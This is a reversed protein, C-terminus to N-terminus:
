FQLLKRTKTLIRAAVNQTHQLKHFSHNTISTLLSNGNDIRSTIPAHIIIAATENIFNEKHQKCEKHSFICVPLDASRLGKKYHQQLKSTMILLETEEDNLKLKNVTM